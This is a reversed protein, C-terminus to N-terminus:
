MEKMDAKVIQRCADGLQIVNIIQKMAGLPACAVVTYYFVQSLSIYGDMNAHYM